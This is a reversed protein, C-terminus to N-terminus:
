VEVILNLYPDVAATLDPLLLTTADMQEIVAPGALRHGPALRARDYVPCAVFRGAEALWVDREGAIAAAADTTAPPHARIEARRVAGV